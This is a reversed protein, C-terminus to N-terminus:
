ILRPLCANWRFSVIWAVHAKLIIHRPHSLRSAFVLWEMRPFIDKNTTLWISFVEFYRKLSTNTLSPTYDCSAFWKRSLSLFTYFLRGWEGVHCSYDASSWASVLLKSKRQDGIHAASAGVNPGDEGVKDPANKLVQTPIFSELSLGILISHWCGFGHSWESPWLMPGQIRYEESVVPSTLVALGCIMSLFLSKSAMESLEIGTMDGWAHSSFCDSISWRCWFTLTLM